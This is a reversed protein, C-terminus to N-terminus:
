AKRGLWGWPGRRRTTTTTAAATPRRRWRGSAGGCLGLLLIVYNAKQSRIPLLSESSCRVKCLRSLGKTRVWESATARPCARRVKSGEIKAGGSGGGCLVCCGGGKKKLGKNTQKQLHQLPHRQTQAIGLPCESRGQHAFLDPVGPPQRSLYRRYWCQWRCRGQWSQPAHESQLAERLPPSLPPRFSPRPRSQRLLRLELAM